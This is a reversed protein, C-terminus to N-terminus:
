NKCLCYIRGNPSILYGDKIEWKEYRRVTCISLGYKRVVDKYNGNELEKKVLPVIICKPLKKPIRVVEGALAHRVKEAQEFGLIEIFRMWVESM